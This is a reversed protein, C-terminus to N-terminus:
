DNQFYVIHDEFLLSRLCKIFPGFLHIFIHFLHLVTPIFIDSTTCSHPTKSKEVMGGEVEKYDDLLDM